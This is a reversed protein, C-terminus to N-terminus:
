LEKWFSYRTAVECIMSVGTILLCLSALLGALLLFKGLHFSKIKPAFLLFTLFFASIILSISNMTRIQTKWPCVMNVSRAQDFLFSNDESFTSESCIMKMEATCEKWDTEDTTFACELNSNKSVLMTSAALFGLALSILCYRSSTSEKM